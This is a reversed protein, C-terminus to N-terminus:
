KMVEHIQVNRDHKIEEWKTQKKIFCLINIPIWTFIFLPFLLIGFVLKLPNKKCLLVILVEAAISLIYMLFFNVLCLLTINSIADNVEISNLRLVVLLILNLFSLVQMLPGLYLTIVDLAQLKGKKILKGFYLKMCSIIGSSWRKRQKWSTNFKAPYEDYTIAKEVYAIKEDNLACQGTFELDETLTYTEFGHKTLYDKKIMFGTGNIACSGFLNMRTKNYFVNQFLYFLAYGGSIWNDSPNKAERNGQAVNYGYVLAKNMEKLFDPHVLNDADFIIYADIDKKNKLKNFAVKLADGKTKIIEHCELVQAKKELAVEKTSDTCNNSIVYIEFKEKPYNQKKLSDILNGIVNEENRAPILIAFNNEKNVKSAFKYKNKKILGIGSLLIFFLGYLITIAFVLYYVVVFM